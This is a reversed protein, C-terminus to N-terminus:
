PLPSIALDHGILDFYLNQVQHLHQVKSDIYIGGLESYWETNWRFYWKLAGISIQYEWGLLSDCRKGIRELWEPTIPIPECEPSDVVWGKKLEGKSTWFDIKIQCGEKEDCRVSHEFPSFGIVKALLGEDDLIFNGLRLEKVNIM